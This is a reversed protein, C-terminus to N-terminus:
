CKELLSNCKEIFDNRFWKTKTFSHTYIIPHSYRYIYISLTKMSNSYCLFIILRYQTVHNTTEVMWKWKVLNDESYESAERSHYVCM